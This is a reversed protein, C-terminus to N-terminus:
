DVRGRPDRLWPCQVTGLEEFSQSMSGSYLVKQLCARAENDSQQNRHLQRGLYETLLM